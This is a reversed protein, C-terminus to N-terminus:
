FLVKKYEDILQSCKATLAGFLEDLAYYEKGNFRFSDIQDKKTMLDIYLASFKESLTNLRQYKPWDDQSIEKIIPNTPMGYALLEAIDMKLMMLQNNIWPYRIFKLFEDWSMYMIRSDFLQENQNSCGVVIGLLCDNEIIKKLLLEKDELSYYVGYHKQDVIFKQILDNYTNVFLYGLSSKKLSYGCEVMIRSLELELQIVNNIKVHTIKM